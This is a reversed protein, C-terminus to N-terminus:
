RPVVKVRGSFFGFGLEGGRMLTNELGSDNKNEFFTYKGM